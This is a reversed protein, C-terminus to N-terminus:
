INFVLKKFILIDQENIKENVLIGEKMLGLSQGSINRRKEWFWEKDEM